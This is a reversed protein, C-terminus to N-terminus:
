GFARPRHYGQRAARDIVPEQVATRTSRDAERHGQGPRREAGHDVGDIRGSIRQHHRRPGQFISNHESKSRTKNKVVSVANTKHTSLFKRPQSCKLWDWKTKVAGRLM